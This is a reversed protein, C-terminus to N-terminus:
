SERFRVEFVVDVFESRGLPPAVVDLVLDERHDPPLKELFDGWAVADRDDLLDISGPLYLLNFFTIEEIRLRTPFLSASYVQQYRVAPICGFPLCNGTGPEGPGFTVSVPAASAGGSFLLAAAVVVCQRSARYHRKSAALIGRLM